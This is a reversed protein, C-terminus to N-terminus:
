TVILLFDSKDTYHSKQLLTKSIVGRSKLLDMINAQSFTSNSSSFMDFGFQSAVGSMSSMPSSNQTDEVIFSLEAKFRSDRTLSFVLSSVTFFTVFLLIKFLNNQIEKKLERLTNLIDKLEIEKNSSM